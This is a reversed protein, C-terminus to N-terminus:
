NISQSQLKTQGGRQFLIKPSLKDIESSVQLTDMAIHIQNKVSAVDTHGDEMLSDLNLDSIYSDALADQYCYCVGCKLMKVM